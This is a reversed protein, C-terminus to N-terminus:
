ARPLSPDGLKKPLPDTNRTLALTARSQPLQKRSQLCIVHVAAAGLAVPLLRDIEEYSRKLTKPIFLPPFQFKRRLSRKQSISSIYPNVAVTEEPDSAAM